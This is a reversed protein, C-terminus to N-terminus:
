HHQNSYAIYLCMFVSDTDIKRMSM